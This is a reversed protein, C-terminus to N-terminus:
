VLQVIDWHMVTTQILCLQSEQVAKMDAAFYIRRCNSDLSRSEWNEGLSIRDQSLDIEADWHM